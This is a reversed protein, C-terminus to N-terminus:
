PSGSGTTPTLRNTSASILLVRGVYSCGDQVGLEAGALIPDFLTKVAFEARQRDVFAFVKARSVRGQSFM